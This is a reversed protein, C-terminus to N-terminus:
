RGNNSKAIGNPYKIGDAALKVTTEATSGDVFWVSGFPLRFINEITKLAFLKYYRDRTTYFKDLDVLVLNNLNYLEPNEFSKRYKLSKTAPNYQFSDVTDRDRRHNVVYLVMSGDETVWNGMGHPSFDQSIGEMFNDEFTLNVPSPNDLNLDMLFVGANVTPM